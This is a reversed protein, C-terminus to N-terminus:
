RSSTTSITRAMLRGVSLRARAGVAGAQEAGTVERTRFGVPLRVKPDFFVFLHYQNATDVLRSEAPYIEFGEHEPGVILNKIAQLDRWDHVPAKDRRKISLWLVDGVFEGFPAILTHANMQYKDNMYVSHRRLQEIQAAAADHTVSFKRAIEAVDFAEDPLMAALFPEMAANSQSGGM